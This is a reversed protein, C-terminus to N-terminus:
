DSRHDAIAFYYTFRLIDIYFFVFFFFTLRFLSTHRYFLIIIRGSRIVGQLRCRYACLTAPSGFHKCLGRTPGASVLMFCFLVIVNYLIRCSATRNGISIIRGHLIPHSLFFLFFSASFYCLNVDIYIHIFM